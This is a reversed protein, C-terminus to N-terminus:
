EDQETTPHDAVGKRPRGYTSTPPSARYAELDAEEIIWMRPGLRAAKIKGEGILRRVQSSDVGLIEAAQATTLM